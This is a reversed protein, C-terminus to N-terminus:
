TKVFTMLDSNNCPRCLKLISKNKRLYWSEVLKTTAWAEIISQLLLIKLM